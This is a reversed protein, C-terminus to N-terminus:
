RLSDAYGQWEEDTCSKKFEMIESAKPPNPDEKLYATILGTNSTNLRQEPTMESYSVNPM